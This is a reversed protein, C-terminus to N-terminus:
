RISWIKISKFNVKYKTTHFGAYNKISQTFMDLLDSATM